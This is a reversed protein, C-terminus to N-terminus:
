FKPSNFSDRMKKAEIKLIQIEENLIQQQKYFNITFETLIKTMDEHQQKVTAFFNLRFDTLNQNLQEHQRNMTAINVNFNTLAKEITERRDTEDAEEPEYEDIAKMIEDDEDSCIENPYRKRLTDVTDCNANLDFTTAPMNRIATDGNYDNRIMNCCSIIIIVPQDTAQNFSIDFATALENWFFVKVRHILDTVVFERFFQDGNTTKTVHKLPRVDDIVGIIDILHNDQETADKFHKLNTFKFINDPILSYKQQLATVITRSTLVIQIDGEFCKHKETYPAVIFNSIEYTEGGVFRDDFSKMLTCRIWAHMRKHYEDILIMHVGQLHGDRNTQEWKRALRVKIKWDPDCFEPPIIIDNEEYDMVANKPPKVQGNGIETYVELQEPNCHPFLKNFEFEMESLNYSTEDIVLNNTGSQLYNAPPQPLQKFQMLSKGISKLIKDIEALAFYQLQKDSYSTM